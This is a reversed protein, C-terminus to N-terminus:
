IGNEFRRKWDTVKDLELDRENYVWTSDTDGDLRYYINDGGRPVPCIITATKGIESKYFMDYASVVKVKDAPKFKLM